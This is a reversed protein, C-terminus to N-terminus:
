QAIPTAEDRESADDRHDRADCRGSGSSITVPTAGGDAGRQKSLTGIFDRADSDRGSWQKRDDTRAEDSGSSKITAIRHPRRAEEDAGSRHTAADRRMTMVAPRRQGRKCRGDMVATTAPTAEDRESSDDPRRAEDARLSSDRHDPTAGDDCLTTQRRVDCMM